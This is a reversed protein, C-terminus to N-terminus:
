DCWLIVKDQKLSEKIDICRQNSSGRWKLSIDRQSDIYRGDVLIDVSQIHDNIIIKEKDQMLM